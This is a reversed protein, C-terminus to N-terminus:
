VRLDKLPSTKSLNPGMALPTGCLPAQCTARRADLLGNPQGAPAGGHPMPGAGCAMNSVWPIAGEHGRRFPASTLRHCCRLRFSADTRHCWQPITALAATSRRERELGNPFLPHQIRHGGTREVAKKWDARDYHHPSPSNPSGLFAVRPRGGLARLAGIGQLGATLPHHCPRGLFLGQTSDRLPCPWRCPSRKPRPDRSRRSSHSAITFATACPPAYRSPGAGSSWHPPEGFNRGQGKRFM